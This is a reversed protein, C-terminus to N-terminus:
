SRVAPHEDWEDEYDLHNSVKSASCRVFRKKPPHKALDLMAKYLQRGSGALEVRRSEGDVTGYVAIWKAPVVRVRVPKPKRYKTPIHIEPKPKKPVGKVERVRALLEKRRMGLGKEQLKKQILNASYRRKVYYRILRDRKQIEKKSLKRKLSM